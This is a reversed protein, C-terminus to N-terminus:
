PIGRRIKHLQLMVHLEALNAETLYVARAICYYISLAHLATISLCHTYHLLQYVARAICYYISLAHLATISLCCTCHLLQYVACKTCNDSCM